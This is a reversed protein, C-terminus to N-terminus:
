EPERKSTSPATRMALLGSTEGDLPVKDNKRVWLIVIGIGIIALLFIFGEM